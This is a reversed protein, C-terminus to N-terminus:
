LGVDLVFSEVYEMPEISGNSTFYLPSWYQGEHGKLGDPAQQWLDGTWVFTENGDDGRVRIVTNQQAHTVSVENSGGYLCGQGPTPSAGVVFRTFTADESAAVCALDSGPSQRSWPGMPSSSRFVLVGSGQFCFCCCHGYLLYYVGNREFMAPAEVFYDPFITGNFAGGQVTANGNGGARVPATNTFDATLKEISMYFNCGYAIYGAGDKPDVFVDFDGCGGQAAGCDPGSTASPCLRSLNMSPNKLIFPGDPNDAVYVAATYPLRFKTITHPRALSRALFFTLAHRKTHVTGNGKYGEGDSGVYNVFLVYKETTPNFVLHPRYLISCGPLEECQVATGVFEWSGNPDLSKSRWISVNHNNHFGCHDATQDCGYKEPERCLGYQAGHYYYFEGFKRYTGDHANVIEGNQDVKPQTNNITVLVADVKRLVFAYFFIIVIFTHSEFRSM